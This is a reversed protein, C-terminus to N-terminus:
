EAVRRVQIIVGMLPHDLYHTEGSRMRRK